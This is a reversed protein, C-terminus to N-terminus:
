NVVMITDVVSKVENSSIAFNLGEYDKLKFNNVGVIKGSADILPGGSNGPNMAVDTQFYEKGDIMRRASIIGENVSFELGAPSGLALVREGVDVVNSDAFKLRKFAGDIKLVAIDKKEDYGIISVSHSSGDYTRVAGSKAGKIVHYNSVIYGDSDFIVGSGISVDTQVSVVSKIVDDVLDSFDSSKLNVSLKNELEDFKDSSEQKVVALEGSFQQARLDSEQKFLVVDQGLKNLGSEVASFAGDVEFSKKVFASNLDSLAVSLQEGKESLNYVASSFEARAKSFQYGQYFFLGSVLVLSFLISLLLSTSSRM